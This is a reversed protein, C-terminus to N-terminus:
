NIGSMVNHGFLGSESDVMPIVRELYVGRLDALIQRVERTVGSSTM